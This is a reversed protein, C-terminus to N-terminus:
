RKFLDAFAQKKGKKTKVQTFLDKYLKQEKMDDVFYEMNRPDKYHNKVEDISIDASEAIKAFEAEVEDQSVEIKKDALLKDVILRGKLAKEVDAKWDGLMDAKSKGTSNVLKELQEPSTQFQQAMQRWRAELEIETMSAPLVVPNKEIMAEILSNNKIENLRNELAANLDKTIGAKLDDLTKYKESVDQALEDDLEPLNRVKVATLEIRLKKTAGALETNNHDASYTKTVDKKDGKKMGIVDDDIEFLNQGSGLTFVYDQRETGKIVEGADDLECYNVTVINDKEAADDDKKDVVLANREQIAKLEENIEEDGIAVEPVEVTIGDLKVDAIEPMVDYKVTFTLDKELDMVPAEDMTPQAYPLPQPISEDKEFIEQLTKDILDALAEAKLSEGFKRELVNTPVHGKRFGPIQVSKAYKALLDKYGNAVEAQPITATLEVASNELKKIEKKVDM